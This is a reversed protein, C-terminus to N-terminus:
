AVPDKMELFDFRRFDRDHTYLRRVGHFRLLAALHADPVLNGRVQTEDAVTRWTEWFGDEESLCRCHPLNLLTEVNAMADEPTLPEDFISPHTAIRLYGMITPWSLYFLDRRNMCSQLFSEAEAHFP